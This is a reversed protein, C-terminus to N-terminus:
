PRPWVGPVFLGRCRNTSSLPTTDLAMDAGILDEYSGREIERPHTAGMIVGEPPTPIRFDPGGGTILAEGGRDRDRGGCITSPPPDDRSRPARSPPLLRSCTRDPQGM